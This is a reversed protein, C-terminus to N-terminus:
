VRRGYKIEVWLLLLLELTLLAAAFLILFAAAPKDLSLLHLLYAAPWSAVVLLTARCLLKQRWLYFTNM